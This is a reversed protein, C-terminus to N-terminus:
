GVMIKPPRPVTVGQPRWLHLCYPHINVYDEEAPHYQLVCENKSWFLDKIFCMEEWTCCRKSEMISISVHDWGHADSAICFLTVKSPKYSIAFAGNNGDAATSRMFISGQTVRYQEPVKFM